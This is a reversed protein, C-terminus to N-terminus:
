ALYCRDICRSGGSFSGTFGKGGGLQGEERGGLWKVGGGELVGLRMGFNEREKRENLDPASKDGLWIAVNKTYIGRLATAYCLIFLFCPTPSRRPCGSGSIAACFIATNRKNSDSITKQIYFFGQFLFHLFLLRSHLLYFAVDFSKFRRLKFRYTSNFYSTNRKLKLPTLDNIEVTVLMIRWLDIRQFRWFTRKNLIIM